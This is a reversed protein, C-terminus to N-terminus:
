TYDMSTEMDLKLIFSNFASAIVFVRRKGGEFFVCYQFGAPDNRVAFDLQIMESRSRVINVLLDM